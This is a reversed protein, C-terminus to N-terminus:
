ENWETILRYHWSKKVTDSWFYLGQGRVTVEPKEKVWDKM